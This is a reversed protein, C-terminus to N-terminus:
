IFSDAFEDLPNLIETLIKSMLYTLNKLYSVIMRAPHYFLIPEIKHAKYLLYICVCM